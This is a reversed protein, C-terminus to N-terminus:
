LLYTKVIYFITGILVAKVFVAQMNLSGDESLFMTVNKFINDVQDVNFLISLFIIVMVNKAEFKINELIDNSKDNEIMNTKQNMQQQMAQQQQQMAQQQAMQQQQMAQRQAMQQQQMAQQQQMMKIQEPSPQQGGQQAMNPQGQQPPGQQPPGQQGQQPGTSNIDNLISDVLKADEDSIGGGLNGIQTEQSM